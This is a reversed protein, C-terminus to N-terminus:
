VCSHFSTNFWKRLLYVMFHHVKIQMIGIM